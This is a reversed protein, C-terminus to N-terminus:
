KIPSQSYINHFKVQQMEAKRADITVQKPLDKGSVDDHFEADQYISQDINVDDVRDVAGVMGEGLRGDHLM